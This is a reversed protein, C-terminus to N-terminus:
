FINWQELLYHSNINKKYLCGKDRHLALLTFLANGMLDLFVRYPSFKSYMFLAIKELLM